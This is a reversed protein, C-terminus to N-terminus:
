YDAWIDPAYADTLREDMGYKQQWGVFGQDLVYIGQDGRSAQEQQMGEDQINSDQNPSATGLEGKKMKSERERIYRLAASPGRQQSLACHFVVTQRDALTRVIEPIRHDLDCSPVHKSGHIHGGVYDDDRVDVVAVKSADRSLLLEALQERSMRRLTAISIMSM